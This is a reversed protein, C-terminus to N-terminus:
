CYIDLGNDRNYLVTPSESKMQRNDMMQTIWTVRREVVHVRLLNLYLSSAMKQNIDDIVYLGRHPIVM